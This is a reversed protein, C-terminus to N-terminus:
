GARQPTIAAEAVRVATTDAQVRAVLRVNMSTIADLELERAEALTKWRHVTKAAETLRREYRAVTLAYRAAAEQRVAYAAREGVWRAVATYVPAVSWRVRRLVLGRLSVVAAAARLQQEQPSSLDFEDPVSVTPEPLEQRGDFSDRGPSM